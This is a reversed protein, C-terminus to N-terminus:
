MKYGALDQSSPQNELMHFYLIQVVTPYVCEFKLHIMESSKNNSRYQYYIHKRNMARCPSSYQVSFNMLDKCGEM